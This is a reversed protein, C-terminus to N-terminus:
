KSTGGGDKAEETLSKELVRNNKRAFFCDCLIIAGPMALLAAIILVISYIVPASPKGMAAAYKHNTVGKASVKASYVIHFVSSAAMLAISYLTFDMDETNVAYVFASM